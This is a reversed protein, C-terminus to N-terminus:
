VGATYWDLLKRLQESEIKHEESYQQAGPRYLRCLYDLRAAVARIMAASTAEEETQVYSAKPHM